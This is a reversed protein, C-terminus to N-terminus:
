QSQVPRIEVNEVLAKGTAEAWREWEMLSKGKATGQSLYYNMLLFVKEDLATVHIVSPRSSLANGPSFYRVWTRNGFRVKEFGYSPRQLAQHITRREISNAPSREVRDRTKQNMEEVLHLTWEKVMKLFADEDLMSGTFWSPRQQVLLVANLLGLGGQWFWGRYEWMARVFTNKPGHYEDKGRWTQHDNLDIVSEFMPPVEAYLRDMPYKFIVNHQGLRTENTKWNSTDIPSQAMVRMVGLMVFLFTLTWRSM